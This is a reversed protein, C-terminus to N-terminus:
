RLSRIDDLRDEIDDAAKDAGIPAEDLYSRLTGLYTSADKAHDQAEQVLGVAVVNEQRYWRIEQVLREVLAAIPEPREEIAWVEVLALDAADLLMDPRLMM